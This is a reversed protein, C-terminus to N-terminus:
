GPLFLALGSTAWREGRRLPGNIIFLAALGTAVLTSGVTHLLAMLLRAIGPSLSSVSKGVVPTWTDPPTRMLLDAVGGLVM